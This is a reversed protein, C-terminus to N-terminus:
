GFWEEVIAQALRLDVASCRLAELLIAVTASTPRIRGSEIGSIEARSKRTRRALEDQSSRRATRLLRLCDGVRRPLRRALERKESFRAPRPSEAISQHKAASSM